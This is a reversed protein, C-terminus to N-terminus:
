KDQRNEFSAFVVENTNNTIIDNKPEDWGLYLEEWSINHKVLKLVKKSKNKRKVDCIKVNSEKWWGRENFPGLNEEISHKCWVGDSMTSSISIDTVVLKGENISNLKAILMIGIIQDYPEEPLTCVKLDADMYKQIYEDESEDIFISNQLVYNLFYKVRELAINQERVSESEVNFDLDLLYNNITFENGFYTGASFSFKSNVRATM